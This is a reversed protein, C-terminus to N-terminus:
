KAAQIKKTLNNILEVPIIQTTKPAPKPFFPVAAAFREELQKLTRLPELVQLVQIQYKNSDNKLNQLKNNLKEIKEFLKKECTSNDLLFRAKAM